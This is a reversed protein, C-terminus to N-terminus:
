VLRMDDAMRAASHRLSNLMNDLGKQMMRHEEGLIALSYIVKGNHDFVPVTISTIGQDQESTTTCFGDHRIQELATELKQRAQQDPRSQSFSADLIAQIKKPAQYALLTKGTSGKLMTSTRGVRSHIRLINKSQVKEMCVAVDDVLGTLVVDENYEDRLNRMEQLILDDVSFNRTVASALTILKSGLKYKGNPTDQRLWGQHELTKVVRFATTKHLGLEKSIDVVGLYQVDLKVFLELINTARIVSNIYESGHESEPSLNSM